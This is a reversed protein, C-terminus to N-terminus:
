ETDHPSEITLRAQGPGSNCDLDYQIEQAYLATYIGATGVAQLLFCLIFKYYSVCM